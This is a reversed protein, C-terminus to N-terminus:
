YTRSGIVKEKLKGCKEEFRPDRVVKQTVHPVRVIERVLPVRVKSSIERPRNKNLRKFEKRKKRENATSTSRHSSSGFMAENYEKTGLKAKLNLLEEFTLNSLEQRIQTQFVM